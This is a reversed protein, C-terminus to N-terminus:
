AIIDGGVNNKELSYNSVDSSINSKANALESWVDRQPKLLEIVDYATQKDNKSDIAPLKKLIFQYLSLMNKELEGGKEEDILSALTAIIEVSKRNAEFRKEFDQVDIAAIADNMFSIVREILQMMMAELSQTRLQNNFYAQAAKNSSM